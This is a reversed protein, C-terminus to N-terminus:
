PWVPHVFADGSAASIGGADVGGPFSAGGGNTLVNGNATFFADLDASASGGLYEGDPSGAYGPFYFHADSSVQQLYVANGGYDAGSADIVNNDLDLGLEAFDGSLASGGVQALLGAFAFDGLEGIRNDAVTAELVAPNAADGGNSRLEIAAFGDIDFIDNDVISVAVSADGAGAAKELSVFIGGGFLSGSGDAGGGETGISNGEINGRVEGAQQGYLATLATGVAGTFSNDEVRFDVDIDSGAGGGTLLVGGGVGGQGNHFQNDTITLDQSSNDGATVQLLDSRAGQFEVGDVILTLSANGLTLVNVGDGGSSGDNAGVVAANAASDAITLNLSGSSNAIGLTDGGGGNLVNGLFDANGTLETLSITGASAAGSSVTSDTLAFGAINAGLIAYNSGAAITTGSISVGAGGGGLDIGVGTGTTIDVGSVSLAGVSGGDDAIGAGSGSSINIGSISNNEGVNVGDGATPAVTPDGVGILSQGDLLNIGDAEAYTGTGALLYVIDGAAPGDPTGQAANFAAISTFPNAQTGENTSGVASNDIYWTGIDSSGTVTITVTSSSQAGHEDEITYSIVVEATEGPDLYDFDTGPDFRVQNGVISASGQGAPASAGTVTLVAGDDADSDNALVDVTVVANEDTTAVDASAVPADNTGTVTVAITSSSTAGHEDSVTYTVTVVETAGEALHDFDGGPDFRVQNGVISASGQGAPASAGTVTLVAGDDVDTDNAVVDVVVASNEGTAAADSSAVPGDNAGTVTVAVTSTSTAGHEDSIGYSFIVVQSAGQALHDFDSGPDFVVQNAVVTASGQGAPTSAGTVTLVAGDDADSDNALVAIAVSANEGTAAADANAVPGDNTGTITVTITSSSTAGHEDQMVYSLVVTETAGQALHDFDSGPDFRVQNGVVSASGKGAPASASVLSKAAGDDVDTDNALADILLVQNETGAASDASAVPGDNTGTVTVSVTSSSTAGHEDTISYSIVVVESAGQALHDFDAGPDFRVQNGFVSASGKGAPASASTVSLAAGNDVDTDNALVNIALVQNEHGTAADPNAVPVDNRGGITITLTGTDSLSGDSVTYTFSDTVNQGLALSQTSAYPTYTYTGNSNLVLTGYVGNFTGATATLSQGEWDFDNALVSSGSYSGADEHTSAVDNFAIPANNQTLDIVADAFVLREVSILRDNGDIRSGGSHNVFFEDGNRSFSYELISGSYVATDTGLGGHLLDAGAGGRLYDDGADGHLQDNGDGGDLIDGGARGQLFDDGSGGNIVDNGSTGKIIEDWSM